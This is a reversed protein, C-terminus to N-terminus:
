DDKAKRASQGGYGAVPRRGASVADSRSPSAAARLTHTARSRLGTGSRVDCRTDFTAPALRRVGHRCAALANSRCRGARPVGCRRHRVVRRGRTGHGRDAAEAGGYGYLAQLFNVVNGHTVGVGKPRGTSGSTYIVYALHAPACVRQPDDAAYDAFAAEDCDLLITSTAAADAVGDLLGAHTLVVAPGADELMLALRERPYAPDLPMYTGGAKLTALLAIVM